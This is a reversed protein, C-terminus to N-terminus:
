QNALIRLLPEIEEFDPGREVYRRDRDTEVFGMAELKPLHVHHMAVSSSERDSGTAFSELDVRAEDTSDSELLAFLLERREVRTLAEFQPDTAATAEDIKMGVITAPFRDIGLLKM